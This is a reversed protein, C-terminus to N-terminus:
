WLSFDYQLTRSCYYANSIIILKLGVKGCAYQLCNEYEVPWDKYDQGYNPVNALLDSALQVASAIKENLLLERSEKALFQEDIEILEQQLTTQTLNFM